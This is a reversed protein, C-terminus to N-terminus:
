SHTSPSKNWEAELVKMIPHLLKLSMYNPCWNWAALNAICWDHCKVRSLWLQCKAYLPFEIRAEYSIRDENSHSSKAAKLTGMLSWHDSTWIRGPWQPCITFWPLEVAKYLSCPEMQQSSGHSMHGYNASLQHTILFASEILVICSLVIFSYNTGQGINM